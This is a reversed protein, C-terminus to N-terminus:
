PADAAVARFVITKDSSRTVSTTFTTNDATFPTVNTAQAANANFGTTPVALAAASGVGEIRDFSYEYLNYSTGAELESVTVDFTMEMWSAPPNNSCGDGDANGVFPSEYAFGALRDKPNAKGNTSTGTIALVVPKQGAGAPGVVATAFDHVMVATANNSAGDGGTMVKASPGPVLISYAHASEKHGQAATKGLDDFSYGYVYPICAKSNSAQPPIAPNSTEKGGLFMLSGHDEIYLVDDGHYTADTADHNTGIKVVSVIHDYQPDSGGPELVGLTIQHGAITQAKVWSMFDEYGAKGTPQSASDYQEFTLGYNSLCTNVNAAATPELLLQANYDPADKHAGCFADPGTQSLSVGPEGDLGNGQAGCLLRANFQSTWQGHNLGAQIMSTEGCNGSQSQWQYFPTVPQAPSIFAKTTPATTGDALKQSCTSAQSVASGSEGEAEGSPAVSCAALLGLGLLGAAM